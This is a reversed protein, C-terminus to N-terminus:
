RDLSGPTAPGKPESASRTSGRSVASSARQTRGRAVAHSASALAPRWVGADLHAVVQPDREPNGIPTSIEDLVGSPSV